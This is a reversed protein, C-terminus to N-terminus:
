RDYFFGFVHVKAILLPIGVALAASPFSVYDIASRRNQMSKASHIAPLDRRLDSYRYLYAACTKMCPFMSPSVFQENVPDPLDFADSQPLMHGPLASSSHIPPFDSEEEPKADVVPYALSVGPEPREISPPPWTVTWRESYLSCIAETALLFLQEARDARL